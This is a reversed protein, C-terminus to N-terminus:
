ARAALPVRGVRRLCERADLLGHGYASQRTPARESTTPQAATERLSHAVRGSITEGRAADGPAEALKQWALAAIAAVVSSAVCTGEFAGGITELHLSSPGLLDPKAVGSKTPGRASYAPVELRPWAAARSAGVVLAAEADAPVALSQEATHLALGNPADLYLQFACPTGGLQRLKIAYIGLGPRDIAHRLVSVQRGAPVLCCPEKADIPRWELTRLDLVAPVVEYTTQPDETQWKVYAKLTSGAGRVGIPNVSRDLCRYGYLRHSELLRNFSGFPREVLPLPTAGWDHFAGDPSPIATFRPASYTCEGGNGAPLVVLLGQRQADSVADALQGTGDGWSSTWKLYSNHIIHVGRRAALGLAEVFGASDDVKILTYEARPALASLIELVLTGHRAFRDDEAAAQNFAGDFAGTASGAIRREPPIDPVLRARVADAYGRFGHDLIAVRVGNGDAAAPVRDLELM